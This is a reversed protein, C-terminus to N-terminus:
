LAPLGFATISPPSVWLACRLEMLFDPRVAHGRQEGFSRSLKTTGPLPPVGGNGSVSAVPSVRYSLPSTPHTAMLAFRWEAPLAGPMVASTSTIAVSARRLITM